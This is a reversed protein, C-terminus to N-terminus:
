FRYGLGLSLGAGGSNPSTQDYITLESRLSLRNDFDYQGGLGLLLGTRSGSIPIDTQGAPTSAKVTTYALGLKSYLSFNGPTWLHVKAAAYATHGSATLDTSGNAVTYNATHRGIQQYGVEGFVPMGGGLPLTGLRVGAFLGLGARGETTGNNNATSDDPVVVVAAFNTGVYTDSEAAAQAQASALLLLPTLIGISAFRHLTM